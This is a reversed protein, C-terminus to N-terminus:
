RLIDGLGRSHVPDNMIGIHGYLGRFLAENESRRVVCVIRSDPSADTAWKPTFAVLGRKPDSPDCFIASLSCAGPHAFVRLRTDAAAGLSSRLQRLSQASSSFQERYQRRESRSTTLANFYEPPALVFLARFGPREVFFEHVRELFRARQILGYLNQGVVVLESTREDIFRTFEIGVQAPISYPTVIGAGCQERIAAIRTELEPFHEDFIQDTDSSLGPGIRKQYVSLAHVMKKTGEWNAECVQFSSLPLRVDRPTVDL